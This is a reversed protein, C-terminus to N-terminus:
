KRLLTKCDFAKGTNRASVADRTNGASLVLNRMANEELAIGQNRIIFRQLVLSAVATIAVAAWALIITRASISWRFKM